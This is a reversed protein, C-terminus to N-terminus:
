QSPQKLYAYTPRFLFWDSDKYRSSVTKWHYQVEQNLLCMDQTKPWGGQKSSLPALDWMASGHLKFGLGQCGQFVHWTRTGSSWCPLSPSSPIAMHGCGVPPAKERERERNRQREWALACAWQCSCFVVFCLFVFCSMPKLWWGPSIVSDTVKRQIWM